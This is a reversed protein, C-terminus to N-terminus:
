EQMPHRDSELRVTRLSKRINLIAQTLHSPAVLNDM